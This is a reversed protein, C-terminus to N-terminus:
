RSDHVVGAVLDILSRGVENPRTRPLLHDANEDVVLRSHAIGQALRESLDLPTMVDHRGVMIVTACGIRTLRNEVDFAACAEFDRRVGLPSTQPFITQAGPPLKDGRAGTVVSVLNEFNHDILDFLRPAVPLRAGTAFL